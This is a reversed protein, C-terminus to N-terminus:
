KYSHFFCFYNYCLTGKLHNWCPDGEEVVEELGYFWNLLIDKFHNLCLHREEVEEELAHKRGSVMIKTSAKSDSVYFLNTVFVESNLFNSPNTFTDGSGKEATRTM